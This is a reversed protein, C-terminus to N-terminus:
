RVEVDGTIDLGCDVDRQVAAAAGEVDARPVALPERHHGAGSPVREHDAVGVSRQLVMEAPSCIDICSRLVQTRGSEASRDLDVVLQVAAMTAPRAPDIDPNLGAGDLDTNRLRLRPSCPM